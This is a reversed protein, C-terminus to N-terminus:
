NRFGSLQLFCWGVFLLISAPMFVALLGLVRVIFDEADFPEQKRFQMVTAIILAAVAPIVFLIIGLMRDGSARRVRM